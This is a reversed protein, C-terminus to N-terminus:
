PGVEPQRWLPLVLSIPRRRALTITGGCLTGSTLPDPPGDASTWQFGSRGGPGPELAVHVEIPAGGRSFEEVLAPNELRNLMAGPTLPFSSVGTVTGLLLGHEEKKVSVPSLHVPMRAHVQKGEAASLYLRAELTTSTAQLSVLPAHAAVRQGPKAVVELVEGAYPSLVEVNLQHLARNWEAENVAEQYQAEKELRAEQRRQESQLWVIDLQDLRIRTMASAHEADALAVQADLLQLETQIGAEKLRQEAELRLKLAAIQRTEDALIRTYAERQKHLIDREAVRERELEERLRQVDQVLRAERLEAQRLKLGLEPQLLEAIAQGATIAQGPQALIDKITGEGHASVVLVGGPRILIGRGSVQTAVRGFIAWVLATVVLVGAGCLALWAKPTTVQMLQDLQEPSSLQDLASQRFIRDQETM